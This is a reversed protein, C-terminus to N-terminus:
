RAARRRSRELLRTIEPDSAGNISLVVIHLAEQIDIGQNRYDLYTVNLGDVVQGISVNQFRQIITDVTELAVERIPEARDPSYKGTVPDKMSNLAEAQLIHMSYTAGTLFGTVFAHREARSIANWWRGDTESSAAAGPLAYSLMLLVSLRLYYMSM